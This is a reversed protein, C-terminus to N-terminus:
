DKLSYRKGPFRKDDDKKEGSKAEKVGGGSAPPGFWLRRKPGAPAPAPITTTKKKEEEVPKGDMRMRVGTFTVPEPEGVGVGDGQKAAAAAAFEAVPEAHDLAQDFEVECDTEIVCVADAPRTEVVDLYYFKDGAVVAITEGTTLCFYNRFNYELLYRPESLKHFDSTHPQLKLFTAKPISTSRLLVLDNERLGLHEMMMTPIHIFGEDATFELVGCYSTQLTAANQIQFQMPYEIHLYGLRDLASEPMFVRNGDDANEKKLLSIPLCRYLQAFSASQLNLYEEFDM